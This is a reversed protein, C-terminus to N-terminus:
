RGAPLFYPKSLQFVFDLMLNDSPQDSFPVESLGPLDALTMAQVCLIGHPQNCVPECQIRGYDAAARPALLPM